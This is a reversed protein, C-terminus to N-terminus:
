GGPHPHFVCPYHDGGGEVVRQVSLSNGRVSPDYAFLFGFPQGSNVEPHNFRVDCDKGLTYM